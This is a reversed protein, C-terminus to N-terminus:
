PTSREQESPPGEFTRKWAEPSTFEPMASRYEAALRPWERYLRRHLVLSRKM